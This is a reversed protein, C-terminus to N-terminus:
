RWTVGLERLKAALLDAEGAHNYLHASIRVFHGHPVDVIPLEWGDRLVRLQLEGATVNPPLHIPIAARGLSRSSAWARM